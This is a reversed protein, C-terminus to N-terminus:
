FACVTEMESQFSLHCGFIGVSARWVTLFIFAGLFVPRITSGLGRKQVPSLDDLPESPRSGTQM